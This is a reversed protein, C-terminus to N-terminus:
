SKHTMTQLLPTSPHCSPPSRDLSSPWDWMQVPGDRDSLYGETSPKGLHYKFVYDYSIKCNNKTKSRNVYFSM